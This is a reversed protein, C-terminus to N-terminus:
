LVYKICFSERTESYIQRLAVSLFKEDDDIIDPYNKRLEQIVKKQLYATMERMAPELGLFDQMNLAIVNYKNLHKKYYESDSIKYHAFMEASSCSKDYYAVLMNAAISKGFRRPRSVCVFRQETNIVKNTEKILGTKDVYIESNVAMEFRGNGPNLYIGMDDGEKM